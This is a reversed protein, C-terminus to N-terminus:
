RRLGWRKKAKKSVLGADKILPMSELAWWFLIYDCLLM